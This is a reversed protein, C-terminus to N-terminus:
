MNGGAAQKNKGFWFADIEVITDGSAGFLWDLRHPLKEAFFRDIM